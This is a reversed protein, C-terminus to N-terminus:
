PEPNKLFDLTRSKKLFRLNQLTSSFLREQTKFFNIKQRKEGTKCVKAFSNSICCPSIKTRETKSLKVPAMVSFQKTIKENGRFCCKFVRYV